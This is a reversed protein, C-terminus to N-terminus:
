TVLKMFRLHKKGHPVSGIMQTLFGVGMTRTLQGHAQAGIQKLLLRQVM